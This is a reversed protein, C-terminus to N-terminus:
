KNHFEFHHTRKLFEMFLEIIEEPKQKVIIRKGTTLTVITDPTQEITEILLGNIVLEKGDLRNLYLM